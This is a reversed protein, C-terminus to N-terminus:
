LIEAITELEKEIQAELEHVSGDNNFRINAMEICKRLNQHNPDTSSM